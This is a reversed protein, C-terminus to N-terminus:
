RSLLLRLLSPIPPYPDKLISCNSSPSISSVTSSHCILRGAELCALCSVLAEVEPTELPLNEWCSQLHIACLTEPFCDSIVYLDNEDTLSRVDMGLVELEGMGEIIELIELVGSRDSGPLDFDLWVLHPKLSIFHALAHLEAKTHDDNISMIKLHKLEPFAHSHIYLLPFIDRCTLEVLSLAILGRANPLLNHFLGVDIPGWLTLHTLQECLGPTLERLLSGFISLQRLAAANATIIRSMADACSALDGM